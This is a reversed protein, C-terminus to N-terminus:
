EATDQELLLNGWPDVDCSWGASLWTTSVEEVILAPGSVRDGPALMSREILAVPSEHGPMGVSSFAKAGTSEQRRLALSTAAARVRIRLNLMEVPVELRHGYRQEHLAHFAAESAAIGEWAINLTNSQGRYRLDLSCACELADRGIGEKLLEAVAKEELEGFGALLATEDREALLGQWTQSVERGPRTALMGLASLVGAHVPVMAHRMGLAEALACVHLGGAGGFSLLRYDKPDVGREVSIMRLAAAMHENAVAIVGRAAEVPSCAMADGLRQMAAYAADLDLRMRGGLFGDPRLRGLVLNADSVTVEVGGRGYCVPGPDAGASEPGVQLMGGEDVRAISGGGAGITHMDVMSVAVPWRGIRGENTLQPAGDILSVDTSTGGMDFTLLQENGALRGLWNAGVLGGAPGSLLMRVAQDGAQAADMTDGSSQIVSLSARPLVSRLRKVYGEVLPGVWANLWTAIGREYERIEPLVESSLSTFLDDPLAERIRQELAGDKWSFLLNVAVARPQKQEVQRLLEELDEATLPDIVQGSADLRGGTELCLEAPVPPPVIEPQLNYLEPRAQRGITLLDRFGRNTVFLTRVGKGELAANTAVTSGHVLRLGEDGLGLDRIGQLIAREPADPTSLVKHIRLQDGDYLVFDTFTGGTDVGLFNM